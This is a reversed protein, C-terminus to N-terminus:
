KTLTPIKEIKALSIIVSILVFGKIWGLTPDGFLFENFGDSFLWNWVSVFLFRLAVEIALALCFALVSVSNNFKRATGLRM